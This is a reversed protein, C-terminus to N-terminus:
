DEQMILWDKFSFEENEYEKYSKNFYEKNRKVFYLDISQSDVIIFYNTYCFLSDEETCLVKHGINYLYETCVYSETICNNSPLSIHWNIDPSCSWYRLIDDTYGFCWMDSIDYLRNRFTNSNLVVIRGTAECKRKIPFMQVARILYPIVDTAYMRQDTRSKCVYQCGMEKARLIGAYSSVIQLNANGPIPTPKENLVLEIGLEVFPKLHCEPTDKWTSLIICASPYHKKYLKVTELTFDNETWIGGQIVIGVKEEFAHHSKQFVNEARIPRGWITIYSGHFTKIQKKIWEKIKNM